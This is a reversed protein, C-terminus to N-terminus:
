GDAAEKVMRSSGLEGLEAIDSSDNRRTSREFLADLRQTLLLLDSQIHDLLAVHVPDVVNLERQLTASNMAIRKMPEHFDNLSGDDLAALEQGASMLARHGAISRELEGRVIRNEIALTARNALDTALELDNSTFPKAPDSRALNLVGVVRDHTKLPVSLVSCLRLREVLARYAPLVRTSLEEADAGSISTAEGTSAVKGAISEGLPIPCPLLHERLDALSDADPHHIGVIEVRKGDRSVLGVSCAEGFIESGRRAVVELLERVDSPGSALLRTVEQLARCRAVTADLEAAADKLETIDRHHVVIGAVVPSTLLNVASVSMWRWRGDRHRMRYEAQIPAGPSRLVEGPDFRDRDDPHILSRGWTGFEEESWGLVRRVAPSVVPATADVRHIATIENSHEQLVELHHRTRDRELDSTVERFAVAVHGPLQGSAALPFVTAEIAVRNQPSSGDLVRLWFPPARVVEGALARRIWPSLNRDAPHEDEFVNYSPSPERQFLRRFAGNFRVCEGDSRIVQYALPSAEFLSTALDPQEDLREPDGM